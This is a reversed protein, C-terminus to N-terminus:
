IAEDIKDSIEDGKDKANDDLEDIVETVNGGVDITYSGNTMEELCKLFGDESLLDKELADFCLLADPFRTIIETKVSAEGGVTYENQLKAGCNTIVMTIILILYSKM